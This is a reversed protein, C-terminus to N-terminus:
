QKAEQHPATVRKSTIKTENVSINIERSANLIFGKKFM